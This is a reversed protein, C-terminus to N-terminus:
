CSILMYIRFNATQTWSMLVLQWSSSIEPILVLKTTSQLLRFLCSRHTAIRELCWCDSPASFGHCVESLAKNISVSRVTITFDAIYILAQLLMCIEILIRNENLWGHNWFFVIECPSVTFYICRKKRHRHRRQEIKEVEIMACVKRSWRKLFGDLHCRQHTRASLRCHRKQPQPWWRHYGGPLHSINSSSITPCNLLFSHSSSPCFGLKFQPEPQKKKHETSM